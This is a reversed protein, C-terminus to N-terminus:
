GRAVAAQQGLVAWHHYGRAAAVAVAVTRAAIAIPWFRSGRGAAVAAVVVVARVQWPAKVRGQSTGTNYTILLAPITSPFSHHNSTMDHRLICAPLSCCIPLLSLSLCDSV